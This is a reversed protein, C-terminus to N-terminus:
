KNYVLNKGKRRGRGGSGGGGEKGEGEEGGIIGSCYCVEDRKRLILAYVSLIPLLPNAGGQCPARTLMLGLWVGPFLKESLLASAVTGPAGAVRPDGPEGPQEGPSSRSVWRRSVQSATLMQKRVDEASGPYGGPVPEPQTRTEALPM